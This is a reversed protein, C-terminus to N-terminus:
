LGAIQDKLIYVGLRALQFIALLYCNNLKCLVIREFSLVFTYMM